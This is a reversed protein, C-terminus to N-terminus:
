VVLKESARPKLHAPTLRPLRRCDARVSTSSAFRRTPGALEDPLMPYFAGTPTNLPLGANPIVSIPLRSHEALYRVPERMYDPGTSCNLGIIQIPLAEFTDRLVAAPQRNRLLMRGTADLTV